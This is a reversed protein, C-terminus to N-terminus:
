EHEAIKSLLGEIEAIKLLLDEIKKEYYGARISGINSKFTAHLEDLMDLMQPAHLILKGNAKLRDHEPFGTLVCINHPIAQIIDRSFPSFKWEATDGKWVLNNTKLKKM